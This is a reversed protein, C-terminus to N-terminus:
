VAVAGRREAESKIRRLARGMVLAVGPSIIRWYRRFIRRATADTTATRAEYRVSSGSGTPRVALSLAVKAYGPENFPVFDEAAVPRGGYDREWFRGVSGVVLEVGPQEALSVWGPGHQTLDGFTVRPWPPPAPEGRLRRAIKLPLERLAFLVNILPDRLDTERVAAYAEDPAAAVSTERVCTVDFRPLYRDILM